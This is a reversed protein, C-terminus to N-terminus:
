PPSMEEVPEDVGEAVGLAGEDGGIDEELPLLPSVLTAVVSDLREELLRVPPGGGDEDAEEFAATAFFALTSLFTEEEAVVLLPLVLCGGDAAVAARPVATLGGTAVLPRSALCFHNKALPADDRVEFM